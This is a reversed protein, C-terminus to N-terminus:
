TAGLQHWLEGVASELDDIDGTNAIVWDAVEHYEDDSPQATARAVVDSRESGRAVARDVRVDYPADVLVRVWGEGVFDRLIPMELVLHSADAEDVISQIASRIHPHTIAELEALAEPDAFVIAALKSRDIGGSEVVEPWRESVGAFAAGEPELAVHGLKDAEIIRAGLGALMGAVTSKGSGIGGYVVLRVPNGMVAM